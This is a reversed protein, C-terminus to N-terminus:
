QSEPGSRFGLPPLGCAVRRADDWGSGHARGDVFEGGWHCQIAEAEDAFFGAWKRNFADWSKAGHVDWNKRGTNSKVSAHGRHHCYASQVVHIEYGHERVRIALDHDDAGLYLDEDLPGITDWVDKRTMSCAGLVYTCRRSPLEALARDPFKPGRHLIDHVDPNSSVDQPGGINSTVPAVLGIEPNRLATTLREVGKPTLTADNNMWGIYTEGAWFKEVVRNIAPTWFINEQSAVHEVGMDALMNSTGDQSANDWVVFRTPHDQAQLSKVCERTLDISNYSVVVLLTDSM